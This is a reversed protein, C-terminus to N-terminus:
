LDRKASHIKHRHSFAKIDRVIESFPFESVAGYREEAGAILERVAPPENINLELVRQMGLLGGCRIKMLQAHPLEAQDDAIGLIFRSKERLLDTLGKCSDRYDEDRTCSMKGSCRETLRAHPCRCWQGIIPKSFPCLKEEEMLDDM